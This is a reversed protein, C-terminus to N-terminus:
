GNSIARLAATPSVRVRGDDPMLEGDAFDFRLNPTSSARQLRRLVQKELAEIVHRNAVVGERVLVEGILHKEDAGLRSFVSALKERTCHGGEVLLDGLREDAVIGDSATQTICGDVFEFALTEPGAQVYLTGSRREQELSELTTRVQPNTAAPALKPKNVPAAPKAPQTPTQPRPTAANPAPPKPPTSPRSVPPRVPAAPASNTPKPAPPPNSAIPNSAIPAIRAPGVPSNPPKAAAKPPVAPAPSPAPASPARAQTVPKAEPPPELRPELAAAAAPAAPTPEKKERGLTLEFETTVQGRELLEKIAESMERMGREIRELSERSRDLKIGRISVQELTQALISSLSVFDDCYGDILATAASAPFQGVQM